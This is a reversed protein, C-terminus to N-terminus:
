AKDVEAQSRRQEFVRWPAYVLIAVIWAQLAPSGIAPGFGPLMGSTSLGVAIGIALAVLAPTRLRQDNVPSEEAFGGTTDQLWQGRGILLWESVILMTATPLILCNIACIKELANAAGLRAMFFAAVAGLAVALMTTKKSGDIKHHIFDEIAHKIAYLNSDNAAFYNAGIVVTALWSMGGFSFQNLFNTAQATQTIGTKAAILWGTIPFLVEGITLALALALAVPAAGPKGHRWYDAENGWVAFGIIFSSITAFDIALKTKGNDALLAPSITPAVKYLSFLVWCILIPAAFYKAFNAVGKFGFLNNIGMLLAFISAMVPLCDKLQFLGCIVDAMLLSCVTYWGLFVFLLFPVLFRNGAEGFVHKSLHKFSLGTQAALTCVPISYILVASCSLLVSAVIHTFSIGAKFWEFGILMSPFGTVMTIWLMSMTFHGRRDWLPIKRVDTDSHEALQEPLSTSQLTQM